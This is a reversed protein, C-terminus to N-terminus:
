CFDDGSWLDSGSILVRQPELVVFSVLVPTEPDRDAPTVDNGDADIIRGDGVGLCMRIALNSRAADITELGDPRHTGSGSFHLGKERMAHVERLLQNAYATEAVDLLREAGEGGAEGIEDSIKSYEDYLELAAAYAEEDSSFMPEPSPTSSPGPAAGMCSGLGAVLAGAM